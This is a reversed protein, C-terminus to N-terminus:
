THTTTAITATAATTASPTTIPGRQELGPEVVVAGGPDRARVQRGPGLDRRGQVILGAQDTADLVKVGCDLDEYGFRAIIM